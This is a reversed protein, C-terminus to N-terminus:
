RHKLDVEFGVDTKEIKKNQPIWSAQKRVGSQLGLQHAHYTSIYRAEEKSFNVTLKRV